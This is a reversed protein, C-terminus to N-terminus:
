CQAFLWLLIALAAGSRGRSFFFCSQTTQKPTYTHTDIVHRKEIGDVNEVIVLKGDEM